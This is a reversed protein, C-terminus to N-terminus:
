VLLKFFITHAHRGAHSHTHTYMYLVSVIHWYTMWPWFLLWCWKCCDTRRVSEKDVRLLCPETSRFQLRRTLVLTSGEMAAASIQQRRSMTYLDSTLCTWLFEPRECTLTEACCLFFVCPHNYRQWSVAQKFTVIAYKISVSIKITSTFSESFGFTLFQLHGDLYSWLSGNFIHYLSFSSSCTYIHKTEWFMKYTYQM